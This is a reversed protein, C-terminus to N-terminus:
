GDAEIRSFLQASSQISVIAVRRSNGFFPRHGNRMPSIPSVPIELAKLVQLMEHIKLGHSVEPVKGDFWTIVENGNV